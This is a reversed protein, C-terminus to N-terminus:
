MMSRDDSDNNGNVDDGSDCGSNGCGGTNGSIGGSVGISEEGNNEKQQQSGQNNDNFWSKVESIYQLPWHIEADDSCAQMSFHLRVLKPSHLRRYCLNDANGDRDTLKIHPM